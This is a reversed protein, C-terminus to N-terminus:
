KKRYFEPAQIESPKEKAMAVFEDVCPPCCFEYTKGGIVWSFKPNAKTMSIPCLTDGPQPKVDHTAKLGKFKTSAIVSGNARIDDATYKGGPTTYLQTEADDDTKAPRGHDGVGRANPNHEHGHSEEAKTAETPTKALTTKDGRDTCGVVLALITSFGILLLRRM